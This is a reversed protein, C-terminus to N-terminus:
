LLEKGKLQILVIKHLSISIELGQPLPLLYMKIYYNM